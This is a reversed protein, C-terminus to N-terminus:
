CPHTVTSIKKQSERRQFYTSMQGRLVVYIWRQIHYCFSLQVVSLVIIGFACYGMIVLSELMNRPQPIIDGFGIMAITLFCFYVARIVGIDAVIGNFLVVGLCLHLVLLNLAGKLPMKRKKEIIGPKRRVVASLLIWDITYAKVVLRGLNAFCAFTLPIGILAYFISLFQATPTQLPIHGWGITACMQFPLLVADYFPMAAVSPDSAQFLAVGLCIYIVVSSILLIHPIADFWAPEVAMEEVVIEDTVGGDNGNVYSISGISSARTEPEECIIMSEFHPEERIVGITRNALNVNSTSSATATEDGSNVNLSEYLSNLLENVKVDDNVQSYHKLNALTTQIQARAHYNSLLKQPNQSRPWTQTVDQNM